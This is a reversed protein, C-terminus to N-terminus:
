LVVRKVELSQVGFNVLLALHLGTAKLYSVAQSIHVDSLRELAKLELIVRNDVVFDMRFEGCLKNEYLVETLKESEFPLGADILEYTLARHYVGEPFGPGLARHVKQACGIIRFSLERHCGSQKGDSQRISKM